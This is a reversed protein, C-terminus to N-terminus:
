CSWLLSSEGESPGLEFWVELEVLWVVVVVVEDVVLASSSASSWNM